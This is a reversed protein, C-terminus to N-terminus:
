ITLWREDTCIAGDHGLANVIASPLAKDAEVPSIRASDIPAASWILLVCGM